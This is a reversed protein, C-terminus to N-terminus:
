ATVEATLAHATIEYVMRLGGADAAREEIIATNQLPHVTTVPSGVRQGKPNILYAKVILRPSGM